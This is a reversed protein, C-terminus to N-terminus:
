FLEFEPVTEQSILNQHYISPNVKKNKDQFLIPLASCFHPFLNSQHLFLEFSRDSILTSICVYQCELAIFIIHSWNRKAEVTYQRILILYKSVHHRTKTKRKHCTCLSFCKELIILCVTVTSNTKSTEFQSSERWFVVNNIFVLELHCVYNM